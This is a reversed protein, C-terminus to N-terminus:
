TVIRYGLTGRAYVSGTTADAVEVDSWFIERDQQFVRARAELDVAPVPSLIQAQLSATSAKFPGAGTVTWAAMAGATDLLSVVAGEHLGGDAEGNGVHRPMVLFSHGNGQYPMKIGRASIFPNREIAERLPAEGSQPTDITTSRLTAAPAKWRGRVMSLLSAVMKRDKGYIDSRLFCLDKGRRLITAEVEVAENMAAALYNIQFEVTHWPGSEAGMVARAVAQGACLGLSAAVGGHLAGNANANKPHFPLSFVAREGDLTVVEMGIAKCYSSSAAWNIAGKEDTM